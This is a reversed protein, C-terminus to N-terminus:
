LWPAAHHSGSASKGSVSAKPSYPTSAHHHPPPPAALATMGIMGMVALVLALKNKM